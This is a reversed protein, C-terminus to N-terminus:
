KLSANLYTVAGISFDSSSFHSNYRREKKLIVTFCCKISYMFYYRVIEVRTACESQKEKWQPEDWDLEYFVM